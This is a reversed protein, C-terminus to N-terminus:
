KNKPLLELHSRRLGDLRTLWCTAYIGFTHAILQTNPDNRSVKVGDFLNRIINFCTNSHSLLPPELWREKRMASTFNKMFAPTDEEVVFKDICILM